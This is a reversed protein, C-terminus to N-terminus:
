MLIIISTISYTVYAISLASYIVIVIIFVCACDTAMVVGILTNYKRKHAIFVAYRSICATRALNYNRRSVFALRYRADAIMREVATASKCAYRYRIADCADTRIREIHTASKCAYRYRIVDCTDARRREIATAFKCAYRYRIADCADTKIREAATASKCAYRYRAADCADAIIREIATASKCVYCYRTADCADTIHREGATASKCAYSYLFAIGLVVARTITQDFRLALRQNQTAFGTNNGGVAADCADARKREVATASKCVYCYRAADCPDGIKHEGATASKFAYGNLGTIGYIM